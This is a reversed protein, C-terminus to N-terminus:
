PTKIYVDVSDTAYGTPALFRDVRKYRADQLACNRAGYPFFNDVEPMDEFIIIDYKFNSINKCLMQEEREFFAVGKHYWLPFMMDSEPVYNLEYALMSLNSMNLVQLNKKSKVVDLALIRDIGSVTNEPLKVGKLTKYSTLQWIMPEIKVSDTKSSWSNKSVVDAPPPNFISPLFKGLLRNSYKWYNESRWFFITVLLLAAIWIKEFRILDQVSYLLFAIAFSHFYFNVTPPSFSTVQIIMAQVMIGLTLLAFIWFPKDEGIAAWNKFRVILIIIICGIYFKIWLSEEFFASLFDYLNIRSFHPPQGHNFWYSFDYQLLPLIFLGIAIAYFGFFFLLSKFEKEVLSNFILIAAILMFTLGGADQKTFFCLATFFATLGLFVIHKSKFIYHMLFYLAILEFVFVTHNYWPWFNIMVFSLCLVTISLLIQVSGLGVLKFIGRLTLLSVFNIFAQALILSSLYPGFLKFSLYPIIWYGYGLPMGFDKFPFQGLYMRYAGEWTLFINVRFPLDTLLPLASFLLIIGFELILIQKLSLEKNM